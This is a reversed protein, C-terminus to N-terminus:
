SLRGDCTGGSWIAVIRARPGPGSLRGGMGQAEFEHGRRTQRFTVPEDDM